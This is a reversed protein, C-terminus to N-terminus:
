QIWGGGIVLDDQFFVAAQGPTIGTQPESFRVRVRDGPLPELTAPAERHRYRIRCTVDLESQPAAISWSCECAILEGADLTEREGVIVRNGPADIAVVYLPESWSIGLGRRQGITYRHVGRHAGLVQGSVHVIEGGHEEHGCAQELFRVYEGDPIFCIDQSESKGAVRLGRELAMERVQDKSFDGLPFLSQALQQQDLAFLFYSQDKTRDAGKAILMRGNQKVCRVYHGTALYEAGLSRAEDLLSGFKLSRNCLVCPNPTRGSFYTDCFPEVVRNRFASNLDVVHHDIGLQKAVASAERVAGPLEEAGPEPPPSLYDPGNWLQMTMGVVDYGQELLLAAAVSSDVGGSMAIAVRQKM